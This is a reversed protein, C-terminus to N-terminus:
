KAFTHIVLYSLEWLKNNKNKMNKASPLAWIMNEQNGYVNPIFSQFNPSILTVPSNYIAKLIYKLEPLALLRNKM